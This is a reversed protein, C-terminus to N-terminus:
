EIKCAGRYTGLCIDVSTRAAHHQQARATRAASVTFTGPMCSTEVASGSTSTTAPRYGIATSPAWTGNAPGAGREASLMSCTQNPPACRSMVPPDPAQPVHGVDRKVPLHLRRGAPTTWAPLRYSAGDGEFSSASASLARVIENRFTCTSASTRALTSMQRPVYGPRAFDLLRTRAVGGRFSRCSTPWSRLKVPMSRTGPDHRYPHLM